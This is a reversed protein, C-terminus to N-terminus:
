RGSVTNIPFPLSALSHGFGFQHSGGVIVDDLCVNVPIDAEVVRAGLLHHHQVGGGTVDPQEAVSLVGEGLHDFKKRPCISHLGVVDLFLHFAGHRREDLAPEDMIPPVSSYGLYPFGRIAMRAIVGSGSYRRPARKGGFDDPATPRHNGKAGRIGLIAATPRTISPSARATRVDTVLRRSDPHGHWLWRNAFTQVRKWREGGRGADGRRQAEGIDDPRVFDGGAAGLPRGGSVFEALAVPVHGPGVCVVLCFM